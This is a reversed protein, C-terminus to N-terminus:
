KGLTVEDELEPINDDVLVFRHGPVNCVSEKTNCFGYIM